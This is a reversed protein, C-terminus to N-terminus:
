QELAHPQSEKWSAETIRIFQAKKWLEELNRAGCYSMGSRLGGALQELTETVPGKYPITAEVGEPVIARLDEWELTEVGKERQKRSVTAALSAMGRYVKYKTQGRITTLGPSEETGALLSGLMVCSAGAALAKTLHGSNRIGGDAILPVDTERAAHACDLLATLQPVGSGTVIRTTCISGPGVGVRIGDAGAGILDRAGEQTAVNGAVIDVKVEQKLKEVAQLIADAHGHAVDVVLCDAGAQVLAKAREMYDGVAGIAAAVLLRGQHDQTANPFRTTLGNSISEARKVKLVLDVQDPISLFRHLVGLGGFRALAIAMLDETVTDMNASVIPIKLPINRSFKGQPNVEKRSAISSHQPVLLVDDFTIGERM